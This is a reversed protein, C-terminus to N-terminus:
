AVRRPRRIRQWESVGGNERLAELYRSLGLRLFDPNIGLAECVRDFSFVYTYNKTEVWEVSDSSKDDNAGAFNARMPSAFPAKTTERRFLSAYHAIYAEIGDALLAAMLKREGDDDRGSSGDYFQSPLLVDPEFISSYTDTSEAAAKAVISM